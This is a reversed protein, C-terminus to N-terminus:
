IVVVKYNITKKRLPDLGTISSTYVSEREVINHRQKVLEEVSMMHTADIVFVFNDHDIVIIRYIFSEIIERTLMNPTLKAKKLQNTMLMLRAQNNKSGEEREKLANIENTLMTYQDYLKGCKLTAIERMAKTPAQNAKDYMYDIEAELEDRIRMKNEIKETINEKDLAEKILTTVKKFINPNKLYVTNIVDCCAQLSLTESIAGTECRHGDDTGNIYGNCQYVHKINKRDSGSWTRRKFTNGCKLCILTGSLPYQANYKNLDRNRGIYKRSSKDLKKQVREWQDISIIAEHAGDQHYAPVFEDNRQRKHSLFDVTFTKQQLLTGKYKENRLISTITTNNWKTKGYVTKIGRTKLEDCIKSVGVGSDYLDYILKVIEAEAKNIVLKKGDPSKDYGLFHEADLFPIGAKMMKHFTWHVNDSIHRSEEQAIIAYVTFILESTPDLTSIGETDFYVEVGIERLERATEISTLANRSFRTISKTCIKDIKGDKADQIMRNFEKRNKLSTGSVGEDVYIGVFDITKDKSLREKWEEVQNDLSLLQEEKDTSVRCYACVKKKSKDDLKKGSGVARTPAIIKVENDM